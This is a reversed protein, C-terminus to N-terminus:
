IEEYSEGEMKTTYIYVVENFSLTDKMKPILTNKEAIADLDFFWCIPLIHSSKITNSIEGNLADRIPNLIHSKRHKVLSDYVKLTKHVPLTKAWASAGLFSKDKYSSLFTNTMNDVTLKEDSESGMGVCCLVKDVGQIRNLAALTILDEIPTGQHEETGNILADVGGDVAIVLDIDNENIVYNLAKALLKVGNKNFSYVTDRLMESLQAEVMDEHELTEEKVAYVGPYLDPVNNKKLVNNVQNTSGLLVNKYMSKLKFYLPLATVVDYGGGVGVILINSYDKVSIPLNFERKIM